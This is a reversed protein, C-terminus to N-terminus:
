RAEKKSALLRMIEAGKEALEADKEALQADKEALRARLAAVEDAVARRMVRPRRRPAFYNRGSARAGM